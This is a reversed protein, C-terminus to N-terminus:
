FAVLDENRPQLYKLKIIINSSSGFNKLLDLVITSKGGLTNNRLNIQIIEVKHIQTRSLWLLLTFITEQALEVQLIMIM